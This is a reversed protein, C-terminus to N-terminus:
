ASRRRSAWSLAAVSATLGVVIGTTTLSYGLFRWERTAKESEAQIVARRQAAILKAQLKSIQNEYFVAMFPFQRKRRQYNGIKAKLVEVNEFDDDSSTLQKAAQIAVPLYAAPDIGTSAPATTGAPTVADKAASGLSSNRRYLGSAIPVATRM